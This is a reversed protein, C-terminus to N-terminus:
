LQIFENKDLKNMPILGIQKFLDETLKIKMKKDTENMYKMSPGKNFELLYPMMTNTFIIDAGFLQFTLATSISKKNCVQPKIAKWINTLLQIINKWLHNYSKKGMFDYLDDLSEPHSEYIDQDLLYSTLYEEKNYTKNYKKDTNSYDKNTYICKGYNYLYANKIGNKCKILLYLRINCKRKNIIYLDKIYTQIIKYNNILSNINQNKNYNEETIVLNNQYNNQYNNNNYYKYIKKKAYQIQNMIKDYDNLLLIGEKRQINKKLLYINDKKYKKKFLEIDNPNNIIFSEPILKSAKDRGFYYSVIKWLENKSAIKDCGKIAYIAQNNATLKINNLETEIYNYGCPIYLNWNTMNENIRVFNYKDFVFSLTNQLKQHGCKIYKIGLNTNNNNKNHKNNNTNTNTFNNNIEKLKEKKYNIGNNRNDNNNNNDNNDNNDNDNNHTKYLYVIISLIIFLLIFYIHNNNPINKNIM